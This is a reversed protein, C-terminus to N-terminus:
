QWGMEKVVRPPIATWFSTAYSAATRRHPLQVRVSWKSPGFGVVVGLMLQVRNRPFLGGDYAARTPRVIDGIQFARRAVKLRRM